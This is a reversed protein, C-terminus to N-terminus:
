DTMNFFVDSVIHQMLNKGAYPTDVNTRYSFNYNVVGGNLKLLRNASFQEATKLLSTDYKINPFTDKSLRNRHGSLKTIFSAAKKQQDKLEAGAVSKGAKAISNVTAKVSDIM